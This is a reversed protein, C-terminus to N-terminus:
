QASKISEVGLSLLMLSIGLWNKQAERKELMNPRTQTQGNTQLNQLERQTGETMIFVPPFKM